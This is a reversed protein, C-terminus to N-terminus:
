LHFTVKAPTPDAVGHSDIAKVKITHRGRRVHRYTKPSTCRKWRRHGLKCKFTLPAFKGSGAFFVTVRGRHHGHRRHTRIHTIRTIPTHLLPTFEASVTTPGTLTLTCALTGACGGGSWGGFRMDRDARDGLRVKTGVDFVAVCRTGCDIGRPSSVVTGTGSGTKTISLAVQRNFKAIVQTGTTVTVVCPVARACGGGSWSVFRSGAVPAPTLAVKTGQDYNHTCATGCDIGAPSSTVKGLGTGTFSVKLAPTALFSATVAQSTTMTVKCTTATGTCGGSWGTFRSSSGANATLTVTSGRDFPASCTSGCSIGGPSSTVSGSGSGGKAVSLQEQPVFTATVAADATMPVSCAGTGTCAGSWHAFRSGSAPTPTLTVANGAPFSVSCTTPCNIGSPTSAVSGAGDGALTVTLTFSSDAGAIGATLALCACLVLAVALLLRWTTGRASRM